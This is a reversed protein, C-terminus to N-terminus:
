RGGSARPPRAVGAPCEAVYDVVDRGQATLSVRWPMIESRANEVLGASELYALERRIVYSDVSPYAARAVDLCMADTAGIEGGAQVRLLVVWRLGLLSLPDDDIDKM